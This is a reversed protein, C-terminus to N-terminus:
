FGVPPIGAETAQGCDWRRGNLQKQYRLLQECFHLESNKECKSRGSNGVNDVILNARRTRSRISIYLSMCKRFVSVMELEELSFDESRGLAVALRLGAVLYVDV